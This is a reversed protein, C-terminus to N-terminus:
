VRLAAENTQHETVFRSRVICSERRGVARVIEDFMPRSFSKEAIPTLITPVDFATQSQFDILILTHDTSSLSTKGPEATATSPM